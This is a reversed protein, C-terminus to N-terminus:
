RGDAALRSPVSVAIWRLALFRPTAFHLGDALIQQYRIAGHPVGALELRVDVKLELGAFGRTEHVEIGAMLCTCDPDAHIEPIVVPICAGKTAVAMADGRSTVDAAHDLLKVAIPAACAVAVTHRLM